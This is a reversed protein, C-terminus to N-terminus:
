VGPWLAKLEDPQMDSSVLVAPPLDADATVSVVSTGGARVSGPAPLVADEMPLFISFLRDGIRFTYHAYTSGEVVCESLGILRAGPLEPPVPVQDGERFPNGSPADAAHADFDAAFSAARAAPPAEGWPRFVLLLLVAAAALAPLLWPRRGPRVPAAAPTHDRRVEGGALIEEIRARLDAPATERGAECVRELFRREAAARRGCEPCAELHSAVLAAREAGLEQDLWPYLLPQIEECRSM